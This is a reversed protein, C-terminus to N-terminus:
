LLNFEGRASIVTQCFVVSCILGSAFFKSLHCNSLGPPIRDRASQVFADTKIQPGYYQCKKNIKILFNLGIGKNRLSACLCHMNLWNYVVVNGHKALFKFGQSIRVRARQEAVELKKRNIILEIIDRRTQMCYNYFTVFSKSFTESRELFIECFLKCCTV